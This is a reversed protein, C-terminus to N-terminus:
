NGNEEEKKLFEDHSKNTLIKRYREALKKANKNLKRQQKRNPKYPMNNEAQKSEKTYLCSCPAPTSEKTEVDYMMHYGRGYCKKCSPNPDKIINGTKKAIARIYDLPTLTSKDIVEGSNTDILEEVKETKYEKKKFEETSFESDEVVEDEKEFEFDSM